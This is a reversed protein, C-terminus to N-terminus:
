NNKEIMILYKSLTFCQFSDQGPVLSPMLTAIRYLVNFLEIFSVSFFM